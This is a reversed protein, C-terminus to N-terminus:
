IIVVLVFRAPNIEAGLLGSMQPQLLNQQM